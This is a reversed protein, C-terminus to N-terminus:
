DGEVGGKVQGVLFRGVKCKMCQFRNCWNKKLEILGQSQLADVPKVFNGCFKRIITNDEPRLTKLRQALFLDMSGRGHVDYYLWALPILTNILLLELYSRGISNNQQKSPNGFRTHTKWYDNAAFNMKLLPQYQGSLLLETLVPFHYIISTLQSIRVTPFSTPRMRFFRFNAFMPQLRHLHSLHDWERKLVEQYPDVAKGSLMGSVGFLLAELQLPRRAYRHLLKIPVLRALDRFADQNVPGGLTAATEEWLVQEWDSQMANLRSKLQQAKRFIRELGLQEAFNLALTASAGGLQPQCPIWSKSQTLQALNRAYDQPLRPGIEIEPIQTGDQRIVPHGDSEHVVHLIVSNYAPDQEHKHGYWLRTHTHIEIDGFHDVYGTQVKANLFDPGQNTNIIGPHILNVSDGEITKLNLFNFALSGWAYQLVAEEM